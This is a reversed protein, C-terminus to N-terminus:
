AARRIVVPEERIVEPMGAEILDLDRLYSCHLCEEHWGYVDQEVFLDGKCRPCGRLRWMKVIERPM